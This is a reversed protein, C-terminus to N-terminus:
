FSRGGGRSHGGGGSAHGGVHTGGAKPKPVPTRVVTTHTFQDRQGRMYPSIGRYVRKSTNEMKRKSVRAMILVVIAALAASGAFAIAITGANLTLKHDAYKKAGKLFQRCAEAYDGDKMSPTIRDYIKEIESDSYQCDGIGATLLFFQRHEMDIFFQIGSGGPREYGFSHTNYFYENYESASMGQTDVTTVLIVDMQIQDALEVAEKQLEGQEEATLLGADDYVKQQTSDFSCCFLLCITLFLVAIGKRM